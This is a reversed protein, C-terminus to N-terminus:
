DRFTSSLLNSFSSLDVRGSSKSIKVQSKGISVLWISVLYWTYLSLAVSLGIIVIKVIEEIEEM